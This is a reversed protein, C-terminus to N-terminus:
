RSKKAFFTKAEKSKSLYAIIAVNVALTILNSFFSGYILGMAAIVAWLADLAIEAKRAWSKGKWLGLGVWLSLIGLILSGTGVLLLFPFAYSIFYEAAQTMEPNVIGDPSTRQVAKMVEQQFSDPNSNITFAMFFAFLSIIILLIGSFVSLISIIKVLTPAEKKEKSSNRKM